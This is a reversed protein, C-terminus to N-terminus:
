GREMRVACKELVLILTIWGIGRPDDLHSTLLSNRRSFVSHMQPQMTGEGEQVKRCFM